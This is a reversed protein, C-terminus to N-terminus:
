GHRGEKEQFTVQLPRLPLIVNSIAQADRIALVTVLFGADAMHAVHVGDASM